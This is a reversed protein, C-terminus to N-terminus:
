INELEKKIMDQGIKYNKFALRMGTTFNEEANPAAAGSSLVVFLNTIRTTLGVRLGELAANEIETRIRVIESIM